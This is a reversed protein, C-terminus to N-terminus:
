LYVYSCGFSIRLFGLPPPGAYGGGGANAQPRGLSLRSATDLFTILKPLSSKAIKTGNQSGFESWTLLTNPWFEGIVAVLHM